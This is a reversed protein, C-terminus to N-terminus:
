KHFIDEKITSHLENTQSKEALRSFGSAKVGMRWVFKAKFLATTLPDIKTSKGVLSPKM